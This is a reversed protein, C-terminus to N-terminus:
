PSAAHRGESGVEGLKQAFMQRAFSVGTRVRYRGISVAERKQNAERCRAQLPPWAVEGHLVDVRLEHQFEEIMDLFVPFCRACECCEDRRQGFM